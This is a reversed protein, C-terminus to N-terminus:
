QVVLINNLTVIIHDFDSDSLDAYLPLSLCDNYYLEANPFDGHRFGLEQYYPQTHIPIYHVNVGVNAEKLKKFLLERSIPSNETVRVIFLHYSSFCDKNQQQWKLPLHAISKQYKEAIKQRKKIFYTLRSLQSLGLAAQIETMRYNFGLSQQEYYWDGQHKNILSEKEKIVGHSRLALMKDILLKSKTTAVGGEATTIIKVPHFSFVTIDSYKCCGIPSEQYYAGISHSADEIISIDYEKALSSIEKMDCSLGGMHVVIIVKPLSNDKKSSILKKKLADLCINATNTDIDIFDIQAGCYLACNASAVFSIPSTWVIDNKGVTLALCAIHLASTASNVAIAHSVQCHKAIASEFAPVCPGQTLWDSKLVSIVADIDDQIINQKGYPIM